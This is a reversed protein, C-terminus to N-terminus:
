EAKIRKEKVLRGHVLNGTMFFFFGIVVFIMYSILTLQSVLPYIVIEFGLFLFYLFASYFISFLLMGFWDFSKSQYHKSVFASDFILIILNGGHLFINLLVPIQVGDRMLMSQDYIMLGWFLINVPVALCFGAKFFADRIDKSSLFIGAKKMFSLTVYGFNLFFSINTMYFFTQAKIGFYLAIWSFFFMHLCVCIFYFLLKFKHQM